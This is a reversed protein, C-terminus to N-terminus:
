NNFPQTSVRFDDFCIYEDKQSTWSLDDGGLFVSYFIQDIKLKEDKRFLISDTFFAEKGDFWEPLVGDAKGPTNMRIHQTIVHWKGPEIRITDGTSDKLYLREGWISSQDPFYVYFSLKGKEWFMMRASWGDFGNPVNGGCNGIGGALGPLKGGKVFDFDREFKVKYSFFCEDTPTFPFKWQAGTIPGYFKQPIEIKLFHNNNEESIFHPHPNIGLKYFVFDKKGCLLQAGKWIEKTEQDSLRGVDVKEFDVLFDNGSHHQRSCSAAFFFLICIFLFRYKM